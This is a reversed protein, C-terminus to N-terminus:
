RIRIGGKWPIRNIYHDESKNWCIREDRKDDDTTLDKYCKKCFYLERRWPIEELPKGCRECVNGQIHRRLAFEKRNNKNGVILCNYNDYDSDRYLGGYQISLDADDTIQRVENNWPFVHKKGTIQRILHNQINEFFSNNGKNFDRKLTLDVTSKM